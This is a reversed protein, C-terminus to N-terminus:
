QTELATQKKSVIRHKKRFQLPTEKYNKKFIKHFYSPNEYGIEEAIAAISLNTETILELAVTLRKETLLEVFTKGTQQKIKNGLYNSNYDFAAALNELTLNTYNKEIYTLLDITEMNDVTISQFTEQHLIKTLEIFILSLYLKMSQNRYSDDNLGEVILNKLLVHIKEHKSADFLLFHNHSTDRNSANLLFDSVISQSRISQTIIETSLSEEKVLINILIDGEDVYEIQQVIDKDLLLLQGTDLHIKQNNIYQTCSGAYMYNIELFDHTHPPMISFRHHKNVFIDGKEFFRSAPMKPVAEFGYPLNMDNINTQTNKQIIEIEDFSRLFLDLESLEM